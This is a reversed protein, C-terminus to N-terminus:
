RAPPNALPVLSLLNSHNRVGTLLSILCVQEDDALPDVTSVLDDPHEIFRLFHERLARYADRSEDLKLAWENKDLEEFLLFAQMFSNACNEAAEKM